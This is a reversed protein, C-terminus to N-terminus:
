TTRSARATYSRCVCFTRPSSSTRASTSAGARPAEACTTADTGNDEWEIHRLMGAVEVYGWDGGHRYEASLDPLKFRPSVDELAVEGFYIGQDASAGPRELAITLRTDGQIPMYRIQINRFFVMGAPGWYEFRTPSCTSTWSHAGPRAPESSAWSETRTACGCRPRGPMPAWGSCSGSSSDDESSASIPPRRPGCASGRRGSASSSTATRGFENEYSPLKTPRMVDYWDPHIQNIDYGADLMVHGYFDFVTDSAAVPGAVCCSLLFLPIWRQMLRM